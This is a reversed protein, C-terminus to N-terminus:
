LCTFLVIIIITLMEDILEGCSYKLNNHKIVRDYYNINNVFNTYIQDLIWNQPFSHEHIEQETVNIKENKKLKIKDIEKDTEKVTENGLVGGGGM